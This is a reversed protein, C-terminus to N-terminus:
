RPLSSGVERLNISSIRATSSSCASSRTLRRSLIFQITGSSHLAFPSASLAFLSPGLILRVLAVSKARAAKWWRSAKSHLMVSTLTLVCQRFISGSSISLITRCHATLTACDDAGTFRLAAHAPSGGSRLLSWRVRLHVM